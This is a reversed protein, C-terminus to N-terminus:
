KKLFWLELQVWYDSLDEICTQLSTRPLFPCHFDFHTFKGKDYVPIVEFVIPSQNSFCQFVLHVITPNTWIPYFLISDLESIFTHQLFWKELTDSISEGLTELSSLDPKRKKKEEVSKQHLYQEARHHLRKVIFDMTYFVLIISHYLHIM